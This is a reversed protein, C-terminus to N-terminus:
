EDLYKLSRADSYCSSGDPFHGNVAAMACDHESYEPVANRRGRSVSAAIAGGAVPALIGVVRLLFIGGHKLLKFTFNLIDM